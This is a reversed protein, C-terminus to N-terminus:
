GDHALADIEGSRFDKQGVGPCDARALPVDALPMTEDPHKRGVFLFCAVWDQRGGFL